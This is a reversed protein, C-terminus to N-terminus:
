SANSVELAQMLMDMVDGVSNEPWHSFAEEMTGGVRPFIGFVIDDLQFEALLPLAHNSGQLCPSGTAIKRLIDLHRHGEDRVVIVRVTVDYGDRTRAIRTLGNKLSYTLLSGISPSV